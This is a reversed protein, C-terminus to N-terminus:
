NVFRSLLAKIQKRIKSRKKPIEGYIEELNAPVANTLVTYLGEPLIQKVKEV